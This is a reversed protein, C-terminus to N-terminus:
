QQVKHLFGNIRQQAEEAVRIDALLRATKEIVLQNVDGEALQLILEKALRRAKPAGKRINAIYEHLVIELQDRPVSRIVLGYIEAQIGDFQRATFVLEKTRSEGLKKLIYPSISSAVLGMRLESLSFRTDNACIAMDCAAALGIGGGYAAGHVVALTVKNCSYLNYLCQTLNLCEAYNTISDLSAARHMWGLDGGACFAEGRGRLIVVVDDEMGNITQIAHNIEVIM